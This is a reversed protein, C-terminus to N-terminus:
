WSRARRRRGFAASGEPTWAGAKRQPAMAVVIRNWATPLAPRALVEVKSDRVATALRLADDPGVGVVVFYNGTTADGLTSPGKPRAPAALVPAGRLM